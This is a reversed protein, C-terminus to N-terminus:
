KLRAPSPAPVIRSWTSIIAASSIVGTSSVSIGVPLSAGTFPVTKSKVVGVAMPARM